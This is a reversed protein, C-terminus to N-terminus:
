FDFFFLNIMVFYWPSVQFGHTALYQSRFNALAIFLGTATLLCAIVVVWRMLKTKQSKIFFPTLHSFAFVGVSVGISIILAFLMTEGLIQFANTNYFIEAIAICFTIWIAINKRSQLSKPNFNEIEYRDNETQNQSASFSLSAFYM